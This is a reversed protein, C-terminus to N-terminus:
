RPKHAEPIIMTGKVLGIQRMLVRMCSCIRLASVVEPPFGYRFSFTPHLLAAPRRDEQGGMVPPTSNTRGTEYAELLAPEASQELVSWTCQMSDFLPTPSSSSSSSLSLTKINLATRIIDGQAPGSVSLGMTGGLTEKAKAKALEKQAVHDTLIGSDFTASHIEYLVVHDGILAQTKALSSKDFSDVLHDKCRPDLSCVQFDAV